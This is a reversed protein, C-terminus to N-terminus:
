PHWLLYISWWATTDVDWFCWPCDRYVLSKWTTQLLGILWCKSANGRRFVAIVIKIM